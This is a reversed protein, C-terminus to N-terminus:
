TIPAVPISPTTATIQSITACYPSWGYKNQVRYQFQYTQGKTLSSFTYSLVINNTEYGNVATFINGIGSDWELSYSTIPSGGTSASDTVETM